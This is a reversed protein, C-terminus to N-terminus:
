RRALWRLVLLNMASFVIGQLLAGVGAQTAYSAFGYTTGAAEAIEEVRAEEMGASLYFARAEGVMYETWGPNIAKFYVFQGAVAVAAALVAMVAGSRLGEAFSTEPAERLIARMALAYAVFNIAFSLAVTVQIMAIGRSHLGMAWSLVLWAFNAAGILLGWKWEFTKM